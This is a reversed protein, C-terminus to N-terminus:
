SAPTPFQTSNGLACWPQLRVVLPPHHGSAVFAVLAGNFTGFTGRTASEGGSVGGIRRGWAVGAPGVGGRALAAGGGEGRSTSHKSFCRQLSCVRQTWVVSWACVCVGVCSYESRKSLRETSQEGGQRRLSRLLPSRMSTWLTLGFCHEEKCYRCHKENNIPKQLRNIQDVM